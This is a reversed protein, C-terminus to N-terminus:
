GELDNKVDNVKSKIERGTEKADQVLADPEERVIEIKLRAVLAGIVAVAALVPGFAMLIAGGAVAGITLPIELMTRGDQNRIILRRVNGEEILERVREVLQSGAVELEENFTRKDGDNNNQPTMQNDNNSM